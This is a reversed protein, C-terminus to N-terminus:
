RRRRAVELLGEGLVDDTPRGVEGHRRPGLEGGLETVTVVHQRVDHDREVGDVEDAVVRDGLPAEAGVVGAGQVDLVLQSISGLPRRM